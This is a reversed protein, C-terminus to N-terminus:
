SVKLEAAKFTAFVEAGAALGLESAAQASVRAIIRPRSAVAVRLSDGELEVHEIRGQLHNRASSRVASLSLMVASPDITVTVPGSWGGLVTLSTEGDVLVTSTGGDSPHAVGRYYNVGAFAAAYVSAPSALLEAPTGEQVTAGNEMIVLRDAFALAEAPEHTVLIATTSEAGIRRRLAARLPPRAGVDLSSLPEDLLLVGSEVALARAIAIRQAEGNSLLSTGRDALAGAGVFDLLEAVRRRIVAEPVGIARMGFAVNESVDLNGFLARHAFVMTCDRKHPPVFRRKKSDFWTRDNFLIAGGAPRALGAICRLASTKGAGTPGLLAVIEGPKALLSVALRFRGLELAM